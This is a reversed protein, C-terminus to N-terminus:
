SPSFSILSKSGITRGGLGAIPFVKTPPRKNSHAQLIQRLLTAQKKWQQRYTIEM